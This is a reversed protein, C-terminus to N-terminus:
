PPLLLASGQLWLLANPHYESHVPYRDFARRPLLPSLKPWLVPLDQIVIEPSQVKGMVVSIQVPSGQALSCHWTMGGFPGARLM